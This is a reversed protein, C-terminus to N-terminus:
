TASGMMAADRIGSDGRIALVVAGWVSLIGCLLLVAILTWSASANVMRAQRDFLNEPRKNEGLVQELQVAAPTDQELQVAAAPDLQELQVAAPTDQVVSDKDLGESSEECYGRVLWLDPPTM